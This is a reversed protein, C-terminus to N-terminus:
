LYLPLIKVSHEKGYSTHNKTSFLLDCFFSKLQTKVSHTVYKSHVYVYHEYKLLEFLGWFRLIIKSNLCAHQELGTHTTSINQSIFALADLIKRKTKSIDYNTKWLLFYTKTQFAMNTFWNHCFKFKQNQHTVQRAGNTSRLNVINWIIRRILSIHPIVTLSRVQHNEGPMHHFPHFLNGLNVRFSPVRQSPGTWIWRAIVWFVQTNCQALVM